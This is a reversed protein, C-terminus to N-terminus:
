VLDTFFSINIKEYGQQYCVSAFSLFFLQEPTFRSMEGPLKPDTQVGYKKVFRRYAKFSMRVGGNDALNEGQTDVGNVKFINSKVFNM